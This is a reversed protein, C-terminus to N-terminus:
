EATDPVRSKATNKANQLLLMAEDIEDPTFDYEKIEKPKNLTLETKYNDRYEPRHKKILFMLLLHSKQDERDLARIRLEDELIEVSSEIADEWAAAFEPDNRRTHYATRRPLAAIECAKTVSHGKRLAEIFRDKNAAM